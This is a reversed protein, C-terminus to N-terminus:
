HCSWSRLLDVAVPELELKARHVHALMGPTSTFSTASDSHMWGKMSELHLFCTLSPAILALRRPEICGGNGFQLPQAFDLALVALQLHLM